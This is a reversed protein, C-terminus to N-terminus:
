AECGKMFEAEATELIELLEVHDAIAAGMRTLGLGVDGPTLILGDAPFILRGDVMLVPPQLEADPGAYVIEVEAAHFEALARAYGLYLSCRGGPPAKSVVTIKM